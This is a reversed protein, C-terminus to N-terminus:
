LQEVFLKMHELARAAYAGKRQKKDRVGEITPLLGFNSNMPELWEITPNSIYRCLAGIM